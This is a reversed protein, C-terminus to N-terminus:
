ACSSASSTTAPRQDTALRAARRRWTARLRAQCGFLGGGVFGWLHGQPALPEGCWSLARHQDMSIVVAAVALWPLAMRADMRAAYWGAMGWIAGSAGAYWGLDTMSWIGVSATVASVVFAGMAERYGHSRASGLLLLAIGGLNGALHAPSLHVFTASLLRWCQGAEVAHRDFEFTQSLLQLTDM